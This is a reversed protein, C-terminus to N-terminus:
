NISFDYTARYIASVPKGDLTAPDFRVQRLLKVIGRDVQRHLHRKVVVDLVEGSASVVVDAEFRGQISAIALQKPYQVLPLNGGKPAPPLFNESEPVPTGDAFRDPGQSTAYAPRLLLALIFFLGLIIRHM